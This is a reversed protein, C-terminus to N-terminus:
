QTEELLKKAKIHPDDGPTSLLMAEKWKARAQPLDINKLLLGQNYLDHARGALISLQKQANVHYSSVRIAQKFAQYAEVTRNQALAAMGNQYYADAEFVRLKQAFLSRGGAIKNELGQAKKVSSLSLPQKANGQQNILDFLSKFESLKGLLNKDPDNRAQAMAEELHGSAFNQLAQSSFSRATEKLPTRANDQLTLPARNAIEEHTLQAITEEEQKKELLEAALVKQKQQAMQLAHEAEQLRALLPTESFLTNKFAPQVSENFLRAAENLKDQTILTQIQEIQAKLPGYQGILNEHKLYRHDHPALKISIQIRERAEAIQGARFLRVSQIFNGEAVENQAMSVTKYKAMIWTALSILSVSAVLALLLGVLAVKKMNLPKVPQLHLQQTSSFSSELEEPKPQNLASNIKQSPMEFDESKLINGMEVFRFTSQGMRLAAGHKIECQSIRLKELFTGNVSNNDIVWHRDGQRVIKCHVRSVAADTLIIQNQTGRGMRVESQTLVYERGREPGEICILRPAQNVAPQMPRQTSHTKHEKRIEGTDFSHGEQSHEDSKPDGWDDHYTSRKPAKKAVSEINRHAQPSQNQPANKASKEGFYEPNARRFLKTDIATSEHKEEKPPTQEIQKTEPEDAM